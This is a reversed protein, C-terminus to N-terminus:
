SVKQMIGGLHTFGLNGRIPATAPDNKWDSAHIFGMKSQLRSDGIFKIARRVATEIGGSEVIYLIHNFTTSDGYALMAKNYRWNNKATKEYELAVLKREETGSLRFVADPFKDGAGKIELRFLKSDMNKLEKDTIWKDCIGAKELRWLGRAVTEDHEIFQASVSPVHVWSKEQILKKVYEGLVMVNQVHACPHLKFVDLALLQQLQKQQRRIGGSGFLDYWTARTLVGVKTAFRLSQYVNESIRHGTPYKVKEEAEHHSVKRNWAGTHLAHWSRQKTCYAEVKHKSQASDHSMHEVIKLSLYTNLTLSV